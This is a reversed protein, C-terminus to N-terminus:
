IHARDCVATTHNHIQDIGAYSQAAITWDIDEQSNATPQHHANRQCLLMWEEVSTSSTRQHQEIENDEELNSISELRHM